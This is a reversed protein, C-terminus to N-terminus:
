FLKPSASNNRGGSAQELEEDNLEVPAPIRDDQTQTEDTNFISM